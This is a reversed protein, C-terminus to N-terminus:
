KLTVRAFVGHGIVPPRRGDPKGAEGAPPPADGAPAGHPDGEKPPMDSSPAADPPPPPPFHALAVLAFADSDHAGSLLEDIKARPVDVHTEGDPAFCELVADPPPPPEGTRPESAHEFLAIQLVTVGRPADRAEAGPPPAGKADDPREMARWSIGLDESGELVVDSLRLSHAALAGGGDIALLGGGETARDMPARMGKGVSPDGMPAGARPDPAGDRPPPPLAAPTESPDRRHVICSLSPGGKSPDISPAGAPPAGERAPPPPLFFALLARHPRSAPAGDLADVKPAAAVLDRAEDPVLSPAREITGDSGGAPPEAVLDAFVLMPRARAGATTSSAAAPDLASSSSASPDVAATCAGVALAGVALAVFHPAIQKTRIRTVSTVLTRISM